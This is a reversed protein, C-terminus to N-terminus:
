RINGRLREIGRFGRSEVIGRVEIGIESVRRVLFKEASATDDFIYQKVLSLRIALSEQPCVGDVLSGTVGPVRM